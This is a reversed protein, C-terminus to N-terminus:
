IMGEFEHCCVSIAWQDGMRWQAERVAFFRREVSLVNQGFAPFNSPYPGNPPNVTLEFMLILFLVM